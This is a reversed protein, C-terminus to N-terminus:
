KYRESIEEKIKNAEQVALQESTYDIGQQLYNILVKYKGKEAPVVRVDPM